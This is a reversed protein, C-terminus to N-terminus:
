RTGGEAIFRNLNQTQAQMTQLTYLLDQRGTVELSDGDTYVTNLGAVAPLAQNGTAQFPEPSIRKLCLQLVLDPYQEKWQTQTLGFTDKTLYLISNKGTINVGFYGTGSIALASKTINCAIFHGKNLTANYGVGVVDTLKTVARWGPYNEDNNMDAIPLEFMVTEKSGVGTVADVTGGYITEPLSLQATTGPQYPEFDSASFVSEGPALFIYFSGNVTTGAPLSFYYYQVVDGVEIRVGNLALYWTNSGTSAKKVVVNLYSPIGYYTGPPLQPVDYVIASDATTTATGEIHVVGNGMKTFTIGSSVSSQFNEDSLLNKGRVNVTVDDYGTIPRVNEPSPDGSGAQKPELTVVASLPYDEVPNCTVPNGSVSFAPCLTDVIKKSSWTETTNVANDNLQVGDKGPQGQPIGLSLVLNPTKGTIEATADQGPALTTVTGVTITPTQGDQGDQGDQGPAGQAGTQGRPIGLNIQYAPGEGTVSATAPQDPGLTEVNGAALTPTVGNQGTNGRPITFRLKAAGTTGVNEVSAQTGPEGTVTSEVEITAAPGTPGTQGRPLVFDFVAANETGSNKVQPESGPESATVTGVQITAADGKEGEPITFNLVPATNTGSNTVNAPTGPEGTTTEGIEIHLGPVVLQSQVYSHTDLDWLMWYGNEGPVPPHANLEKINAEAQSFETPLVPWTGPGVITDPVYVQVANTHHIIEGSTGRLQFAYYTDGFALQDATLSATAGTATASLPIINYKGKAEVLMDWTYGSPLEGEVVLSHSLNDYQRGVVGQRPSILWQSFDFVLQM